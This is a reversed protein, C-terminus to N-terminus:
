NNSSDGSQRLLPPLELAPDNGNLQNDPSEFPGTVNIPLFCYQIMYFKINQNNGKQDHM